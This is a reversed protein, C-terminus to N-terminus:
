TQNKLEQSLVVCCSSIRIFNQLHGDTIQGSLLDDKKLTNLLELGGCQSREQLSPRVWFKHKRKRKRESLIIYAAAALTVDDDDYWM